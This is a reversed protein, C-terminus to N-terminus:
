INYIKISARIRRLASRIQKILLDATSSESHVALDILLFNFPDDETSALFVTHHRKKITSSDILLNIKKGAFIEIYSSETKDDEKHLERVITRASPTKIGAEAYTKKFVPSDIKKIPINTGAFSDLYVKKPLHIKQESMDRSEKKVNNSTKERKQVDQVQIGRNHDKSKFHKLIDSEYEAHLVTGCIKCKLGYNNKNFEIQESFLETLIKQKKYTSTKERM